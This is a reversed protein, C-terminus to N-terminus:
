SAVFKGRLDHPPDTKPPGAVRRRWADIAAPDTLYREIQGLRLNCNHCLLGRVRNTQHCHDVALRRKAAPPKLCLGCVGGQERLMEEYIEPTLGFPKLQDRHQSAKYTASTRRWEKHRRRIRVANRRQYERYYTADYKKPM